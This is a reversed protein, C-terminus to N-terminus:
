VPISESSFRPCSLMCRFTLARFPAYPTALYSCEIPVKALMQRSKKLITNKLTNRGTGPFIGNINIRFVLESVISHSYTQQLESNRFLFMHKNITQTVHDILQNAKCVLVKASSPRALEYKQHSSEHYRSYPECRIHSATAGSSEKGSRLQCVLEILVKWMVGITCHQQHRTFDRYYLALQQFPKILEVNIRFNHRTRHCRRSSTSPHALIPTKM